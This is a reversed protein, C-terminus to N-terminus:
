CEKSGRPKRSLCINACWVSYYSVCSRNSLGGLPNSATPTANLADQCIQDPIAGCVPDAYAIGTHALSGVSILSALLVVAIIAKKLM